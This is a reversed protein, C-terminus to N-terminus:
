EKNLNKVEWHCDEIYACEKPYWQFLRHSDRMDVEFPCIGDL